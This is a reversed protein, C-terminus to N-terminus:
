ETVLGIAPAGAITELARAIREAVDVLRFLERAVATSLAIEDTSDGAKQLAAIITERDHRQNM